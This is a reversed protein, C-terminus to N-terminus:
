CLVVIRKALNSINVLFSGILDSVNRYKIPTIAQVAIEQVQSAWSHAGHLTRFAKIPMSTIRWPFPLGIYSTMPDKADGM